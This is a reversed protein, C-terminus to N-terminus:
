THLVVGTQAYRDAVARVATTIEARGDGGVGAGAVTVHRLATERHTRVDLRWAVTVAIGLALVIGALM